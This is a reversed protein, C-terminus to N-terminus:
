THVARASGFGTGADHQPVPNAVHMVAPKTTKKKRTGKRVMATTVPTVVPSSGVAVAPIPELGHETLVQPRSHQLTEMTSRDLVEVRGKRMAVPSCDGEGEIGLRYGSAVGSTANISQYSQMVLNRAVNAAIHKRENPKFAYVRGDFMGEYPETTRNVICAVEYDSM